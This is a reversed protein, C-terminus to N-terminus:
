IIHKTGQYICGGINDMSAGTVTSILNVKNKVRLLGALAMLLAEKFEIIQRNPVVVEVNIERKCMERIREMLFLNYAGGGTVLLDGGSFSINEHKAISLIDDVLQEAIFDCFTALKDEPSFDFQKIVPWFDRMIWNNDLSKPYPANFYDVKKLATIMEPQLKGKAAILGDQDYPQGTMSALKNLVQNAPCVDFALQKEGVKATINAIGGINLCLPYDSFLIKEAIPIM